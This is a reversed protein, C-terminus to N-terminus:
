QWSLGQGVGSPTSCAQRRGQRKSSKRDSPLAQRREPDGHPGQRGCISCAQPGASTAPVWANIVCAPEAERVPGGKTSTDTAADVIRAPAPHPLASERFDCGSELLSVFAVGGAVLVLPLTQKFTRNGELGPEKSPPFGPLAHTM